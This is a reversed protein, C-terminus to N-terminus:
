MEASKDSFLHLISKRDRISLRPSRTFYLIAKLLKQPDNWTSYITESDRYGFNLMYLTRLSKCRDSTM